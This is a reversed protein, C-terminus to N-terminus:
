KTFKGNATFEFNDGSYASLKVLGIIFDVLPWIGLTIWSGLLLMFIGLGVQGRMFRHVGLWGIFFTVLVYIVKNIKRTGDASTAGLATTNDDKTVIVEKGSKYVKVRDGVQPNAFQLTALPANIIEGTDSGIKVVSQGIELIESM